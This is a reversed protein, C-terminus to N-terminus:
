GLLREPFGKTLAMNAYLYYVHRFMHHRSEPIWGLLQICLKYYNGWIRSFSECVTRFVPMPCNILNSNYKGFHHSSILFQREWGAQKPLGTDAQGLGWRTQALSCLHLSVSLKKPEGFTHLKFFLFVLFCKRLFLLHPSATLCVSLDFYLTLPLSLLFNLGREIRGAPGPPWQGPRQPIRSTLPVSTGWFARFLVWCSSGCLCRKTKHKRPVSALLRKQWWSSIHSVPTQEPSGPNLNCWPLFMGFSIFGWLYHDRM